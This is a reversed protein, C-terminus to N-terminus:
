TLEYLVIYVQCIFFLAYFKLVSAWLKSPTYLIQIDIQTTNTWLAPKTAIVSDSGLSTCISHMECMQPEVESCIWPCGYHCQRWKLSAVPYLFLWLTWKQPRCSNCLVLVTKRVLLWVAVEVDRHQFWRATTVGNILWVNNSATYQVATNCHRPSWSPGTWNMLLLCVSTQTSSFTLKTLICDSVTVNLTHLSWLSLM